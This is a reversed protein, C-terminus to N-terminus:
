TCCGSAASKLQKWSPWARRRTAAAHAIPRVRGLRSATLGGRAPAGPRRVARHRAHAPDAGAPGAGANLSAFQGMMLAQEGYAGPGVGEPMPLPVDANAAANPNDNVVRRSVAVFSTWDTVLAFDLGLQTVRAELEPQDLESARLDSPAVYDRM